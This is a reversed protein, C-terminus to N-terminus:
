CRVERDLSLARMDLVLSIVHFDYFNNIFTYFFKLNFM